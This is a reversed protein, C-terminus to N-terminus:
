LHSGCNKCFTADADHDQLHCEPCVQTSIQKNARTLEATVIGTPVAIIAYGMIMVISALM